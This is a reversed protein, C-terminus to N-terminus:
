DFVHKQMIAALLSAYLITPENRRNSPRWPRGEHGGAGPTFRPNQPPSSPQPQPVPGYEAIHKAGKRRMRTPQPPPHPTLTPPPLLPSVPEEKVQDPVTVPIGAEEQQTDEIRNGETQCGTGAPGQHCLLALKKIVLLLLHHLHLPIM